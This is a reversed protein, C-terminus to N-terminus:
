RVRQYPYGGRIEHNFYSGISDASVLARHIRRPVDDYWYERGNHFRIALTKQRADYAVEAISSSSVRQYRM